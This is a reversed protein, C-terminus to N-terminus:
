NTHGEVFLLFRATNRIFNTCKTHNSVMVVKITDMTQIPTCKSMSLTPRRQFRRTLSTRIMDKTRVNAVLYLMDLINRLEGVYRDQHLILSVSNQAFCTEEM